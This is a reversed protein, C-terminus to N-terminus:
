PGVVMRSAAQHDPSDALSSRSDAALYAFAGCRQRVRERGADLGARWWGPRSADRALALFADIERADTIGYTTLLIKVTLPKLGGGAAQRAGVV